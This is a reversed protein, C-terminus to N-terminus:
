IKTRNRVARFMVLKWYEETPKGKLILDYFEHAKKYWQRMGVPFYTSGSLQILRHTNQDEQEWGCAKSLSAWFTPDLAVLEWMRDHGAKKFFEVNEKSAGEVLWGGEIAKEIIEKPINM